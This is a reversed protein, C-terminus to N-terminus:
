NDQTINSLKLLKDKRDSSLIYRIGADINILNLNENSSEIKFRLKKNNELQIVIDPKNKPAPNVKNVDFAQSLQWENILQNASDASSDDAKPTVQWSSNIKELKMSPFTLKVLKSKTNILKHTIYSEAKAALQYLFTDAVMHLTSSIQIYRHNKLSKNHGFVLSLNNNFTITAAPKDLGFTNPNLNKLNNQSLSVASLLKLISDIRFSNASISYPKLMAWGDPKKEFELLQEDTAASHRNIKISYISNSELNTLPPPTIAEKKGPEYVVIVVLALIFILLGLNLLNNKSM